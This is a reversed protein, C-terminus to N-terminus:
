HGYGKEKRTPQPKRQQLRNMYQKIRRKIELQPKGITNPLRRAYAHVVVVKQSDHPM